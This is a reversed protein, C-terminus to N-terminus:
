IQNSKKINNWTWTIHKFSKLLLYLYSKIHGSEQSRDPLSQVRYIWKELSQYKDIMKQVVQRNIKVEKKNTIAGKKYKRMSKAIFIKQLNLIKVIKMGAVKFM